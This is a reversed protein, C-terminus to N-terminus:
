LKVGLALSLFHIGTRRCVFQLKSMRSARLRHHDIILMMSCCVNVETSVWEIAGTPEGSPAYVSTMEPHLPGIYHSEGFDNWTALEVLQPRLSLIENWRDILLTDSLFIWNKNFSSPGYHTFFWPSVNAM